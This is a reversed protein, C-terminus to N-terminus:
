IVTHKTEAGCWKWRPDTTDEMLALYDMAVSVVGGGGVWELSFHEVSTIEKKGEEGM